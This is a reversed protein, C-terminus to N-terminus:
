RDAATPDAVLLRVSTADGCAQKAAATMAQMEFANPVILKKRWSRDFVTWVPMQNQQFFLTRVAGEDYLWWVDKRRAFVSAFADERRDAWLWFAHRVAFVVAGGVIVFVIIPLVSRISQHM